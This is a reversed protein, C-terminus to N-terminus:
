ANIHTVIVSIGNLLKLEMPNYQMECMIFEAFVIM